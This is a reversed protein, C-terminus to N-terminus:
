RTGKWLLMLAGVRRRYLRSPRPILRSLFVRPGERPAFELREGEPVRLRREACRIADLATTFAFTGPRGTV